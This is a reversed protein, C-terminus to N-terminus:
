SRLIGEVGETKPLQDLYTRIPQGIPVMDEGWHYECAYVFAPRLM